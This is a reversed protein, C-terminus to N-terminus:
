EEVEVGYQKAVTVLTKYSVWMYTEGWFDAQRILDKFFNTATEKRELKRAMEILNIKNGRTTDYVYGSEMTKVLEEKTLVVVDEPIIRCGKGYLERAIGQIDAEDLVECVDKTDGDLDVLWTNAIVKAMEEIQEQKTKM